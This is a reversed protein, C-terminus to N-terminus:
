WLGIFTECCLGDCVFCTLSWLFLLLVLSVVMCTIFWDKLIGHYYKLFWWVCFFVPWGNCYFFFICCFFLSFDLITVFVMSTELSINLWNFLWLLLIVEVRGEAVFLIFIYVVISWSSNVNILVYWLCYLFISFFMFFWRVPILAALLRVCVILEM